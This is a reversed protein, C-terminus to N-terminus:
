RDRRDGLLSTINVITQRQKGLEEHIAERPFIPVDMAEKCVYGFEWDHTDKRREFENDDMVDYPAETKIPMRTFWSAYMGIAFTDIKEFGMKKVDKFNVEAPVAPFFRTTTEETMLLRCCQYTRWEWVRFLIKDFEEWEDRQDQSWSAMATQWVVEAADPGIAKEIFASDKKWVMGLMYHKELDTFKYGM